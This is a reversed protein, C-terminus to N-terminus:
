ELFSNNVRLLLPHVSVLIEGGFLQFADEVTMGIRKEYAGALVYSGNMADELADLYGPMLVCRDDYFIIWETECLAIATNRANSNAWWDTTTVRYTGQWITPKPKAKIQGKGEIMIGDFGLRANVIILHPESVLGFRDVERNFSDRLWGWESRDRGTLFCVTFSKM